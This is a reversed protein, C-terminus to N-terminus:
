TTYGVRGVLVDNSCPSLLLSCLEKTMLFLDWVLCDILCGLFACGEEVGAAKTAADFLFVASSGAGGWDRVGKRGVVIEPRDVETEPEFSFLGMRSSYTDLDQNPFGNPIRRFEAILGIGSRKFEPIQM